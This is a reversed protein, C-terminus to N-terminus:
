RFSPDLTYDFGRASCNIHLCAQIRESLHPSLRSFHTLLATKRLATIITTFNSLLLVCNVKLISLENHLLPSFLSDHKALHNWLLHLVENGLCTLRSSSYSLTIVQKKEREKLIYLIYIYYLVNGGLVRLFIDQCSKWYDLFILTLLLVCQAQYM